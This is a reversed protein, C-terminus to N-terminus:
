VVPTDEGGVVTEGWRVVRKSQSTVRSALRAKAFAPSMRFSLAPTGLTTRPRRQEHKCAEQDDRSM